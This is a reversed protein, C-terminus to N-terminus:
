DAAFKHKDRVEDLDCVSTGADLFVGQVVVIMMRGTDPLTDM